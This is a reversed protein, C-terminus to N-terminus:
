QLGITKEEHILQGDQSIGDIIVLCKSKNYDVVNFMFDGTEDTIVLPSWGIIGFNDFGKSQTNQYDANAFPFSVTYAEKVFFSNPDPKGFINTKPRKTYIKIVGANNNISAVIAHSDIYIEDIENMQMMDLENFSFTLPRDDITVLPTPNASNLSTRQRLTISVDGMSRTVKFGNAEIFNLLTGHNNTDDIKFGRLMSNSLVRQRQLASEKKKVVVEDLKIIKVFFKPLDLDSIAQYGVDDTCSQLIYNTIPKNFPRKRGFVQPSLYSQVVEFNPLKELSLKVLASDTLLLHEFEYEGKESVDAAMMIRDKFAIMKVKHSTKDKLNANVKGKLSLGVDFSYNSTPPNLKMFDWNYKSTEENLLALDLEYWKLRSPNNLYYNANALPKDLYPNITIGAVISNTDDFSKTDEPLVSVSLISNPTGSYGVMNIKDDKKNNKLVNFDDKVAPKIYFLRESWQKLDNDIVRIMNIGEHLDSNNIMITLELEGSKFQIPYAIIKQDQHVILNLKKSQFLDHSSKNTKIKVATKNEISFTNVELSVGFLDPNQLKKELTKGEYKVIAKINKDTPIIDFKGYGFRNLKITKILEGNDNQIIAELNEPANGRCDKVQIGITNSVESILSKGEPHLSLTLSESNIKKYDKIGETPNIVSIKRITSEDENFNNMWNTYVQIYYNGSALKTNLEIRGSFVGNSAYVLKESLQKGKEDFLLVFVNTTFFPKNTKRNIIYGQYWVTENTLFSTKDLHLHIAERELDFYNDLITTIKVYDDPEAQSVVKMSLLFVILLFLYKSPKM